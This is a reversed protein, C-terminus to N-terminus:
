GVSCFTRQGNITDHSLRETTTLIENRYKKLQYLQYELEGVELVLRAQYDPYALSLRWRKKLLKLSQELRAIKLDLTGVTEVM